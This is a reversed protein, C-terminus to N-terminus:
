HMEQQKSNVHKNQKSTLPNKNAQQTQNFVQKTIQTQNQIQQITQNANNTQKNNKNPNNPKKTNTQGM